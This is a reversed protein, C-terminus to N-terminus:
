RNYGTNNNRGGNSAPPSDGNTSEGTTDIAIIANIQQNISAVEENLRSIVAEKDQYDKELAEKFLEKSDYKNPNLSADQPDLQIRIDAFERFTESPTFIDGFNSESIDPGIPIGELMKVTIRPVDPNLNGYLTLKLFDFFETSYIVRRRYGKDMYYTGSQDIVKFLTNNRLIPHEQVSNLDALELELLGIQEELERITDDKPDKYNGIFETSQRIISTHSNEGEKPIDYFLSNYEKFFISLDKPNPPTNLESFSNDINQNFKNKSFIKKSFVIDGFLSTSANEETPEEEIPVEETPGEDVFSVEGIKTLSDENSPLQSQGTTTNRNNRTNSTHYAM